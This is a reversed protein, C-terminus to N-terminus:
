FSIMKPKKQREVPKESQKSGSAKLGFVRISDESSITKTTPIFSKM